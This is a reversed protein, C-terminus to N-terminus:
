FPEDDDGAAGQSGHDARAMGGKIANHLEMGEALLPEHASGPLNCSSEMDGNAYAFAINSYPQNANNVADVSTVALRHAFLPYNGKITRLKTMLQKYPKIKTSNCAIVIPSVASTADPGDLLLAYIYFTEDLENGDETNLQNFKAATSKADLVIKSNIGHTGVFGGGSDRPKWEVYVHETYCPVIYTTEPMLENTVTNFFQGPEAGEIYRENKKKVQPSLDQLLGLFPIALDQSTQNEFGVNGYDGFDATAVAGANPDTTAVESPSAKSKSM